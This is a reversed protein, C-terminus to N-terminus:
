KKTTTKKKHDQPLKLQEPENQEEEEVTLFQSMGTLEFFGDNEMFKKLEEWLDRFSIKNERMYTKMLAKTEDETFNYHEKLGADFAYRCLKPLDAMMESTGALVDRTTIPSDVDTLDKNKVYYSESVFQFALQVLNKCECAEFTYEFDYDKNEIKLTNM